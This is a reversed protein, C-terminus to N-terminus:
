HNNYPSFSPTTPIALNIESGLPRLGRMRAATIGEVTSARNAGTDRGTMLNVLYECFGRPTRAASAFTPTNSVTDARQRERALAPTWPADYVPPLYMAPQMAQPDNLWWDPTSYSPPPQEIAPPLMWTWQRQLAHFAAARVRESTEAPNGDSDMGHVTLQLAEAMRLTVGRCQGIAQAAELRVAEVRDARLASVLGLEAEPYYHCDVSALYRVAACRSKAQAEDLKIKAASIEAPSCWGDNMMRGIEERTPADSRPPAAPAPPLLHALASRLPASRGLAANAFLPFSSKSKGEADATQVDAATESSPLRPSGLWAQALVMSAWGLLMALSAPLYTQKM